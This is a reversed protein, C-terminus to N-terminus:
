FEINTIVSLPFHQNYTTNNLNFTYLQKPQIGFYEFGLRNFDEMFCHTDHVFIAFKSKNIYNVLYKIDRIFDETSKPCDLFVFDLLEGKETFTEKIYNESDTPSWGKKCEVTNELNFLKLINQNRYFPQDSTEHITPKVTVVQEQEEDYSDMTLLKGGTKSFAYGIAITSIATGTALEFGNKLNHKMIFDKFFNFEHESISYPLKGNLGLGKHLPHVGNSNFVINLNSYIYDCLPKWETYSNLNFLNSSM